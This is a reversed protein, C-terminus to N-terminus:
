GTDDSLLMQGARTLQWTATNMNMATTTIGALIPVSSDPAHGPLATAQRGTTNDSLRVSTSFPAITTDTSTYQRSEILGVGACYTERTASVNSFPPQGALAATITVVSAVQICDRNQATGDAQPAYRDLAPRPRVAPQLWPLGFALVLTAIVGLTIAILRAVSGTDWLNRSHKRPLDGPHTAPPRM